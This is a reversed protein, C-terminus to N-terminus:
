INAIAHMRTRAVNCRPLPPAVALTASGHQPRCIAPQNRRISLALTRTPGPCSSRPCRYTKCRQKSKSTCMVHLRKAEGRKHSGPTCTWTRAWGTQATSSLIKRLRRFQHSDNHDAANCLDRLASFEHACVLFYKRVQTCVASHLM